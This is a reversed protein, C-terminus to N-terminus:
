KPSFQFVSFFFSVQTQVAMETLKREKEGSQALQDRLAEAEAEAQFVPYLLHDCRTFGFVKLNM